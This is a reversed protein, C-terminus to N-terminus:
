DRSGTGSPPRRSLEGAAKKKISWMESLVTYRAGGRAMTGWAIIAGSLRDSRTINSRWFDKCRDSVLRDDIVDSARCVVFRSVSPASIAWDSCRTFPQAIRTWPAIRWPRAVIVISTLVLRPVWAIWKSMNVWAMVTSRGIDTISGAPRSYNRHLVCHRDGDLMELQRETRGLDQMVDRNRNLGAFNVAQQTWIARAFGGRDRGSQAQHRCGASKDPYEAM